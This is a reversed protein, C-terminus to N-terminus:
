PTTVAERVGAEVAEAAARADEDARAAAIGDLVGLTSAALTAADEVGACTKLWAVAWGDLESLRLRRAGYLANFREAKALMDAHRELIFDRATARAADASM